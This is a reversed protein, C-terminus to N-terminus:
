DTMVIFQLHLHGYTSERLRDFKIFPKFSKDLAQDVVQHLTTLFMEYPFNCISKKWSM